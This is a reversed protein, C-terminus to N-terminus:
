SDREHLTELYVLFRSFSYKEDHLIWLRPLVPFTTHLYTEKSTSEFIFDLVKYYKFELSVETSSNSQQLFM